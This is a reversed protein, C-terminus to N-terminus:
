KALAKLRRLELTQAERARQYTENHDGTCNQETWAAETLPADPYNIIIMGRRVGHNYKGDAAWQLAHTYTLVTINKEKKVDTIVVVHDYDHQPNTGLMIIFDGPRAESVPVVTSNRDHALVKVGANEAPRMKIILKRFINKAQPFYLADGLKKKHLACLEANLVHYAFGSCDVGLKHDVLFKQLTENDLRELDIKDKLSIILAEEAIDEPSGKGILVRLGGRMGSRRNNYYPCAVQRNPFPLTLYDNIVTEAQPSLM